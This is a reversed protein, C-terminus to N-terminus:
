KPHPHEERALQAARKVQDFRAVHAAIKKGDCEICCLSGRLAGSLQVGVKGCKRCELGSAITPQFLSCEVHALKGALWAVDELPYWNSFELARLRPLTALSRIGGTKFRVGYLALAELHRLASFEASDVLAYKGWLTHLRLRRLNPLMALPAVSKIGIGGFLDIGELTVLDALAGIDKVGRSMGIKLERMRRFSRLLELNPKTWRKIQLTEVNEIRDLHRELDCVGGLISVATPAPSEDFRAFASAPTKPGIWFFPRSSLDFPDANSM